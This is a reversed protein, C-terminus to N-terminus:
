VKCCATAKYNQWFGYAMILAAAIALATIHLDHSFQNLALLAFGGLWIALPAKAKHVKLDRLLFYLGVVGTIAILVIELMPDHLGSEGAAAPAFAAIVPLAM